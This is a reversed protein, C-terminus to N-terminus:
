NDNSILAAARSKSSLYRRKLNDETPEYAPIPNEKYKVQLWKAAAVREAEPVVVKKLDDKTMQIIPKDSNPLFFAKDLVITTAMEKRMRAALDEQTIPKNPSAKAMQDALLDMRAKLNGLNAKDSTSKGSAYPNLGLEDAVANFTEQSMKATAKGEKTNLSTWRNLLQETRETGLTARKALVEERSMSSLADINSSLDLYEPAGQLRLRTEARQMAQIDRGDRATAELVLTHNLRHAEDRPMGNSVALELAKSVSMRKNDVNDYFTNVAAAKFERQSANFAGAKEAINRKAAERKSPDDPFVKDIAANMKFVDVADNPNKPGLEEWTQSAQVFGAQNDALPKLAAAVDDVKKPDFLKPDQKVQDFYKMAADPNSTKLASIVGLSTATADKLNKLDLEDKSWNNLKSQEENKKVINNIYVAANYTSGTKNVDAIASNQEIAIANAAGQKILESHVTAAHSSTTKM